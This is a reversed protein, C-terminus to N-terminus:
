EHINVWISHPYRRESQLQGEGKQRRQARPLQRALGLALVELTSMGRHVFVKDIIVQFFLPTLLAFLQVFFSAVLVESLPRRYKKIADAFWGFGFRGNIDGLAARRVILLIHGDWLESFAALSLAEPTPALPNQMLVKDDSVRGVVLWGGDRLRALM